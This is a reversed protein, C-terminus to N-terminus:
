LTVVRRAVAAAVSMPANSTISYDLVPNLYQFDGSDTIKYALINVEWQMAGTPPTAVTRRSTIPLGNSEEVQLFALPRENPNSATIRFVIVEDAGGNTASVSGTTQYYEFDDASRQFANQLAGIERDLNKGYFDLGINQSM